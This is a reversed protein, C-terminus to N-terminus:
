AAAEGTLPKFLPGTPVPIRWPGVPGDTRGEWRHHYLSDLIRDAVSLARLGDEANVIPQRQMRISQLFHKIEETLQDCSSCQLQVTQLHREFVDNNSRVFPMASPKTDLGNQRLEASPQVLTVDRTQFNISAYGEAAWIQMQRSPAPSARSATVEAICGNAFHLRANAVDEQGGFISVGVAEVGQVDSNVLTLLLDLDHIMLDLVVGIDTSRGTFPGVREAKIFKPRLTRSLVENFAPNFREIHGIQVITDNAAALNALDEAEATTATVPKEILLPKRKELFSRAVQHHYITPVAITAADVLDIVQRYDTFAKAGTQEAVLAVQEQNVDAVAVLEVDPQESLIRAHHRGLHGVGIVAMRVRAM